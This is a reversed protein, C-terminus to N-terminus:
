PSILREGQRRLAGAKVLSELSWHLAQEASLGAQASADRFVQASGLQEILLAETAQELDLMIFKVLVKLAYRANRVPDEKLWALRARARALASDLAFFIPGHGPIVMTPQLSEIRDLVEQQEQFGSEGSLEPFTVGFGDEWLADASILIRHAPAFLMISQPDHGAAAHVEWALSGLNFQQGPHISGDPIFRECRQGTAAFSLAELQWDRALQFSGSPVLIAAGFQQALAANGGCHDSHLHTNLIRTLPRGGLLRELLACTLAAHKVYGTDVVSASGDDEFFLIQNASLWDREIFRMSSPLAQTM